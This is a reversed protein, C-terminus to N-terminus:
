GRVAPLVDRGYAEIMEGYRPGMNAVYVEDYGARRVGCRGVHADIDARRGRERRDDGPDGARSAQMFHEPTRLVQSLEGPVGSNSWLRHAHDVGEGRERGLGGQRRGPRAQRRIRGFAAM